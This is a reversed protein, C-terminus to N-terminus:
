VTSYNFEADIIQQVFFDTMVGAFKLIFNRLGSSIEFNQCGFGELLFCRRASYLEFARRKKAERM